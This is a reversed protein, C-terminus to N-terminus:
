TRENGFKDLRAGCNSCTWGGLIWERLSPKRIRLWPQPTGGRACVARQRNVDRGLWGKKPWTRHSVYLFAIVIAVALLVYGINPM